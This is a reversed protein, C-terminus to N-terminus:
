IYITLLITVKEFIEGHEVSGNNHSSSDNEINKKTM